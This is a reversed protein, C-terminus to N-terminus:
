QRGRKEALYARLAKEVLAALSIHEDIARHQVSDWLEQPLRMTARALEPKPPKPKM